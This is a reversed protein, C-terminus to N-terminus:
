TYSSYMVHIKTGRPVVRPAVRIEGSARSARQMEAGMGAGAGTGAGAGARM